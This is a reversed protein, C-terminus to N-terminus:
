DARLVDLPSSATARRAAFVSALLAALALVLVAIGYTAADRPGVGFLQSRLLRAALSRAILGAGVVLVIGLAIQM